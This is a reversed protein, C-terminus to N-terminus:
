QSSSIKVREEIYETKSLRGWIIRVVLIEGHRVNRLPVELDYIENPRLPKLKERYVINGLHTVLVVLRDPEVLGRNAIRAHLKNDVVKTEEIVIKPLPISTKGVIISSVMFSNPYYKTTSPLHHIKVINEENVEVNSTIEEVGLVGEIDGILANNFYLKIKAQRSPVMGVIKIFGEGSITKVPVKVLAEEGPKLLLAGSLYTISSSAGEVPYFVIMNVHEITIPEAGDFQVGLIHRSQHKYVPTLDFLLKSYYTGNDEVLVQPKFERTLTFDNFLLKWKINVPNFNTTITLDLLVKDVTEVKVPPATLTVKRFRPNRLGGVRVPTDISSIIIDGQYKEVLYQKLEGNSM